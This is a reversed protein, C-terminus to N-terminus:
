IPYLWTPAHAAVSWIGSIITWDALARVILRAPEAPQLMEKPVGETVDTNDL